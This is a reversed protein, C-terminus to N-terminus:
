QEVPPCQADVLKSLKEHNKWSGLILDYFAEPHIANSGLNSAQQQYFSGYTNISTLNSQLESITTRLEKCDMSFKVNSASSVVSGFVVLTVVSLFSKM